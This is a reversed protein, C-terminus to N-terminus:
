CTKPMIPNAHFDHTHFFSMEGVWYAVGGLAQAMQSGACLWYCRTHSSNPVNRHTFSPSVHVPCCCDQRQSLRLKSGRQRKILMKNKNNQYREAWFITSRHQLAAARLQRLLKSLALWPRHQFLHNVHRTLSTKCWDEWPSWFLWAMSTTLLVGTM